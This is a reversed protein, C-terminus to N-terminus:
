NEAEGVYVCEGQGCFGPLRLDIKKGATVSYGNIKYAGEKPSADCEITIVIDKKGPYVGVVGNGDKDVGSFETDFYEAKKVRGIFVLESSESVKDGQKISYKIEDPVGQFRVRYEIKESTANSAIQVTYPAVFAYIIGATILLVLILLIVDVFNYKKTDKEAKM